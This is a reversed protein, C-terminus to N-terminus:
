PRASYLQGLQVRQAIGRWPDIRVQRLSLELRGDDRQDLVIAQLEDGPQYRKQWGESAVNDVSIERQRILGRRHHGVVDVFLGGSLVKSVKVAVIQGIRLQPEM